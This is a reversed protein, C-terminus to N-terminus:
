ELITAFQLRVHDDETSPRNRQAKTWLKIYVSINEISNAVRQVSNAADTPVLNSIFTRRDPTQAVFSLDLTNAYHTLMVDQLHNM